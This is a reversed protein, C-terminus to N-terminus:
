TATEIVYPTTNYLHIYDNAPFKKEELLIVASDRVLMGQTNSCGARHLMAQKHIDM